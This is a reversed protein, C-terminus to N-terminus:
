RLLRPAMDLEFPTGIVYAVKDDSLPDKLKSGPSRRQFAIAVNVM